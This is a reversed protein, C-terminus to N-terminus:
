VTLEFLYIVASEAGTVRCQANGTVGKAQVAFTYSGAALTPSVAILTATSPIGTGTLVGGDWSSGVTAGIQSAGQIVQFNNVGPTASSSCSAVALVLVRTSGRTTIAASTLTAYTTGATVSATQAANVVQVISQLSRLPVATTVLQDRFTMNGNPDRAVIVNTDQLDVGGLLAVDTVPNMERDYGNPDMYVPKRPAAVTMAAMFLAAHM